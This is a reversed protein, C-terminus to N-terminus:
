QEGCIYDQLDKIQSDSLSKIKIIEGHMISFNAEDVIPDCGGRLFKALDDEHGEYAEAIQSISPGLGYRTQDKTSDHCGGCGREKFLIMGKETEESAGEKLPMIGAMGAMCLILFVRKMDFRGYTEKRNRLRISM